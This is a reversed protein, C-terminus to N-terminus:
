AVDAETVDRGRRGHDALHRRPLHDFLPLAPLDQEDRRNMLVDWERLESGIAGAFTANPHHHAVDGHLEVQISDLNRYVYPAPRQGVYAIWTQKTDVKLPAGGTTWGDGHTMVFDSSLARELFAIDGRVAAEDCKKEFAMVEAIKVADAPGPAPVGPPAGGIGPPVGGPVGGPATRPTASSIQPQQASVTGVLILLLIFTPRGRM